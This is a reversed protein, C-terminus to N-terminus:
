PASSARNKCTGSSPSYTLPERSSARSQLRGVNDSVQCKLANATSESLRLTQPSLIKELNELNKLVKPLKPNFQAEAQPLILSVKFVKPDASPQLNPRPM